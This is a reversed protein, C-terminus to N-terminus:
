ATLTDCDVVDSGVVLILWEVVVVRSGVERNLSGVRRDLLEIVRELSGAERELSGTIV